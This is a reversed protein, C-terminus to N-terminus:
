KQPTNGISRDTFEKNFVSLCKMSFIFYILTLRDFVNVNEMDWSIERNGILGVCDPTGITPITESGYSPIRNIAHRIDDLEQDSIEMNTNHAFKNRIRNIIKFVAQLEIPLGLKKAIALKMEFSVRDNFDFFNECKTIKSCWVNLFEELCFHIRLVAGILDKTNILANITGTNYAAALDGGARSHTSTIM